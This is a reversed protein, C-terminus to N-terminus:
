VFPERRWEDNREVWEAEVDRLESGLLGVGTDMIWDALCKGM